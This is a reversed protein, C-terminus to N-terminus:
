NPVTVGLARACRVISEWTDPQLPVGKALREAPLEIGHDVANRIIHILPDRISELVSRDLETEAGIQILEVKKGTEQAADRVLRPFKSWVTSIPQMRTKMMREQLDLTIFDITRVTNTFQPDISNAAFSMLRNRALVMESVLNMLKDLLDVNVRVQSTVETTKAAERALAVPAAPEAAAPAAPDKPTAGSDQTVPDRRPSAAQASAPGPSPAASAASAAPGAATSLAAAVPPPSAGSGQTLSRLAAILASDDGAPEQRTRAVGAVIERLCDLTQLLVNTHDKDIVLEGERVRALLSEGAHAVAELRRFSFFGSSGKLMHMARFISSLLKEDQPTQELQVFDLDLRDFIEQAEVLFEELIQANHESGSQRATEAPLV